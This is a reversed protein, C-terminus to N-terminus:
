TKVRASQAASCIILDGYQGSFATKTVKVLWWSSPVRTRKRWQFGYFGDEDTTTKLVFEDRWRAGIKRSRFLKVTRDYVCGDQDVLHLTEVPTVTVFGALARHRKIYVLDVASPVPVNASASVRALPGISGGDVVRAQAPLALSILSLGTLLGVSALARRM